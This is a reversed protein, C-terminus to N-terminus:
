IGELLTIVGMMRGARKGERRYSHFRSGDCITCFPSVEIHDPRIGSSIMARLNAAKLDLFVNGERRAVVDGAFLSAVDEGVEYCCSSASPGVSALIDAPDTGFSSHMSGIAAQVIGASTGRWGAHVAGVVGKRPDLLLIPVCDAVSVGLVVGPTSTILADCAEYTGGSRAHQVINSHIQRPLALQDPRAGICALFRSRNEIVCAPDDGVNFSLNMGLPAPSVGGRRTSFASRVREERDLLGSRIVEVSDSPRIM